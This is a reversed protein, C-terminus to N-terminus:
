EELYFDLNALTHNKIDRARDRLVEPLDARTPSIIVFRMPSKAARAIFDASAHVGAGGSSVQLNRMPLGGFAIFLGLAPLTYVLIILVKFVNVQALDIRLLRYLVDFAVYAVPVERLLREGVKKRGLRQQLQAFPLARRQRWAVIEGDLIVDESFAALKTPAHNKTAM